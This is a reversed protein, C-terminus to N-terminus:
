RVESWQCRKCGYVDGGVQVSIRPWLVVIGKGCSPCIEVSTGNTVPQSAERSVIAAHQDAVMGGMLEIAQDITTVGDKQLRVLISKTRQLDAMKYVTFEM